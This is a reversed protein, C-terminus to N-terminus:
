TASNFRVYLEEALGKLAADARTGGVNTAMVMAFDDVPDLMVMALNLTNSGTHTLVPRHAYSLGVIGWGLCYSGQGPTGPAANAPPPIDIVKAHLKRLMEPRVLAPGRRGEGAHWGAWSAFDLISLHVTGAPGIILPNDGNPGALMPKLSGDARVLHGLTADVRGLRAQPGFGATTLKLPTFVREVVMEEWSKGGARELMAGAMTYGMNSYAFRTGPPSALPQTRWQRVLWLRMEDLNLADLAFSEVLLRSFTENDSPIGGTHSLL